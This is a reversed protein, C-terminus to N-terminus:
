SDNREGSVERQRRVHAPLRHRDGGECLTPARHWLRVGRDTQPSDRTPPRGPRRDHLDPQVSRGGPGHRIEPSFPRDDDITYNERLM